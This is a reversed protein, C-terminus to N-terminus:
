LGAMSRALAPCKGPTPQSTPPSTAAKVASKSAPSPDLTNAGSTAATHPVAKPTSIVPAKWSSPRASTKSPSPPLGSRSRAKIMMFSERTPAKPAIATTSASSALTDNSASNPETLPVTNHVASNKACTTDRVQGSSSIRRM